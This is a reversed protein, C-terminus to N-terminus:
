ESEGGTTERLIRGYVFIRFKIFIYTWLAKAARLPKVTLIDIAMRLGAHRTSHKRLLRRSYGLYLSIAHEELLFRESADLLPTFREKIQRLDHIKAQYVLCSRVGRGFSISDSRVRKTWLPENVIRLRSSRQFAMDLLLCWDDAVLMKENWGIDGMSSRRLLVGSSPCYSGDLVVKRFVSPVVARLGNVQISPRSKWRCARDRDLGAARTLDIAVTHWNCFIIDADLDEMANIARELFASEWLDDSDLTAIYDGRAHALGLNRAAGQGRHQQRLYRIGTVEALRRATDDESGDDIVIIETNPWTQRKASEIAEVVLSGRNWTPIIVSAIKTKM